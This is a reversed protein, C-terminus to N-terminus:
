YELEVDGEKKIRLQCALRRNQHSAQGLKKLLDWEKYNKENLNENGKMVTCSCTGCEGKGCGFPLSTAERAYTVIAGGQPVDVITDDNKIKVKALLIMEM